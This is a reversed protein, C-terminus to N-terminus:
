VFMNLVSTFISFTTAKRRQKFKFFDGAIQHPKSSRFLSAVLHDGCQALKCSFQRIYINPHLQFKPKFKLKRQKQSQQFCLFIVNLGFISNFWLMITSVTLYINHIYNKFAISHWANLTWVTKRSLNTPYNGRGVWRLNYVIKGGFAGYGLTAATQRCTERHDFLNILCRFKCKANWYCAKNKNLAINKIRKM